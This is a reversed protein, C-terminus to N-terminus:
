CPAEGSLNLPPLSVFCHQGLLLAALVRPSPLVDGLDIVLPDNRGPFGEAELKSWWLARGFTKSCDLVAHFSKSVRRLSLLDEVNVGEM